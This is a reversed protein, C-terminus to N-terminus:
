FALVPRVGYSGSKAYFYSWGDSGFFWADVGTNDTTSWYNDSCATGGAATIYGNSTANYTDNTAGGFANWMTTYDGKSLVMWDSVTTSGLQTYSALSGRAAADPLKKGTIGNTTQNSWGNITNWTQNTANELSIILGHGTSGSYALVGVCTTNDTNLAELTEYVRGNLGVAYGVHGSNVASLLAGAPKNVTVLCTATNENNNGDTVTITTTGVAAGTAAPTVTITTGSVAVTAVSTNSSTATFSTTGSGSLTVSGSIALSGTNGGYVLTLSSKDLSLSGVGGGANITVDGSKTAWDSINVTQGIETGAVNITVPYWTNSAFQKTSGSFSYVITGSQGGKTATITIFNGTISQAPIVACYTASSTQSGGSLLTVNTAATSTLSTSLSNVVGGSGTTESIQVEPKVNNLSIGTITVGSAPAVTIKLKAMVHRFSLPAPTVNWANNQVVRTCNANDALMLDSLCYNQDSNQNLQIKFKKNSVTNPYWGYCHVTTVDAPFSPKPTTECSIAKKGTITYVYDSYTASGNDIRVHVKSSANTNSLVDFGDSDNLGDAARTSGKTVPAVYAAIEVETGRSGMLESVEEACGTTLAAALTCASFFSLGKWVRKMTTKM